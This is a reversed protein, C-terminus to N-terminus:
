LSIILFNIRMSVGSRNQTKQLSIGALTSTTHEQRLTKGESRSSRCWPVEFPAACVAFKSVMKKRRNQHNKPGESWFSSYWVGNSDLLNLNLCFLKQPAIRKLQKTPGLFILFLTVPALKQTGLESNTDDVTLAVDILTKIIYDLSPCPDSLFDKRTKIFIWTYHYFHRQLHM